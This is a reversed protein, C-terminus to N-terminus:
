VRGMIRTFNGLCSASGEFSAEFAFYVRLPHQGFTLAQATGRVRPFGM